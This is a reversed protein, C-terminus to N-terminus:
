LSGASFSSFGLTNNATPSGAETDGYFGLGPNGRTLTNDTGTWVTTGNCKVTIANGVIQAYWVAGDALSVGTSIGTALNTFSNLPGNWLAIDLGNSQTIDIEYQTIRHATITSRLLLEVERSNASANHIVGQCWQNPPFGRLCAVSDDFPPHTHITQTAFALGATTQVDTWDLGVAGGNTWVGGESIPNETLPFSTAYGPLAITNRYV